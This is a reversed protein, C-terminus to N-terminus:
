TMLDVIEHQAMKSKTHYEHLETLILQADDEFKKTLEKRRETLLTMVLVSYMFSKKESFLLKDPTDNHKPYFRPNLIDRDQTSATAHFTQHFTVFYMESKFTHICPYVGRPERRSTSSPSKLALCAWSHQTQCEQLVLHM